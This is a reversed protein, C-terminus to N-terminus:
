VLRNYITQHGAIDLRCNNYKLFLLHVFLFYVLTCYAPYEKGVYVVLLTEKINFQHM